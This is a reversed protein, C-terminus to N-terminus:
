DGWTPLADVPASRGGPLARGSLVRLGSANLPGLVTQPTAGSMPDEVEFDPGKVRRFQRQTLLDPTSHMLAALLVTARRLKAWQWAEVDAELVKRGTGSDPCRGGLLVDIHDEAAQIVRTADADSLQDPDIDLEARLLTPTTYTTTAAAPTTLPSADVRFEGVNVAQSGDSLTLVVRYTYVGANSPTVLATYVGTSPSTVAPNTTTGDPHLLTCAEDAAVVLDGDSDRLEWPGLDITQGVPYANM